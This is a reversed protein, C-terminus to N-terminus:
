NNNRVAVNAGFQKPDLGAKDLEIYFQDMATNFREIHFQYGYEDQGLLAELSSRMGDIMEVFQNRVEWLCPVVNPDDLVRYYQQGLDRILSYYAELSQVQPDVLLMVIFQNDVYMTRTVYEFAPCVPDILQEIAANDLRRFEAGLTILDTASEKMLRLTKGFQGFANIPDHPQFIETARIQAGYAEILKDRMDITCDPTSINQIRALRTELEAIQQTRLDEDIKLPSDLDDFYLMDWLSYRYLENFSGDIDDVWQQGGCGTNDAIIVEIETFESQTIMFAGGALLVGIGIMIIVIILPSGSSEEEIPETHTATIKTPNNSTAKPSYEAKQHSSPSIQNLKNLWKTALPHEIRMLISRAEDYKGAKIMKKALRLNKEVSM